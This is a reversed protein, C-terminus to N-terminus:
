QFLGPEPYTVAHGDVVAFSTLEHSKRVQEDYLDIVSWGRVLLADAILSRHCRWPVAEACMIATPRRAAATILSAIAAAFEQTQMHDAYGRFGGNRWGTNISDPRSKRLGGLERFPLYEIGVRPLEDALSEANFHPHRRSRPVTRVDALAKVGHAHLIGVLEELPRTSHGVTFIVPKPVRFRRM